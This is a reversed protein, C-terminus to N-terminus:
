SCTEAAQWPDTVLGAGQASKLLVQRAAGAWERLAVAGFPTQLQVDVRCLAHELSQLLEGAWERGVCGPTRVIVDLDSGQHLAAVGSALEFGASGSVGWSLGLSNMLPRIQALAQLAPWDCRGVVDILQEPRVRHCIDAKAMFTAYRQERRPGRVGVAVQGPAALARRVVVPHELGVAEIVWDPAGAPLASLPLGWVLDHPLLHLEVNM